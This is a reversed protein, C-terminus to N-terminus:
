TRPLLGFTVRKVRARRREAYARREDLWQEYRELGAALRERAELDAARDEPTRKWTM